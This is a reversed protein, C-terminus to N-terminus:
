TGSTKERTRCTAGDATPWCTNPRLGFVRAAFLFKVSVPFRAHFTEPVWPVGYLGNCPTGGPSYVNRVMRFSGLFLYINQHRFRLMIILM